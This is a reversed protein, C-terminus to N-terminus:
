ALDLLMAALAEPMDIMINHGCPMTSRKWGPLSEVKKAFYRFPSPDWNDALIYHKNLNNPADSLLIPCEFTALAQPYARRDVWPRKAEIVQFLDAQLPKMMGCNNEAASTRFHSIFSAATEPELAKPLLSILSDGNEPVYADIYVLDRIRDRLRDAVGTAVMGGYSHCALIVDNLEETELCGCVDRIHSELTISQAAQHQREGLGSHTPTFVDHGAARLIKAVDRYCWAGYWAGHVLVYTAMTTELSIPTKGPPTYAILDSAESGLKACRL